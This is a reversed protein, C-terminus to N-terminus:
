IVEIINNVHKILQKKLNNKNETIYDFKCNHNDSFKHLLCLKKGCRCKIIILTKKKCYQCKNM